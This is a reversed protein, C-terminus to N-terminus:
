KKYFLKLYVREYKAFFMPIQYFVTYLLVVTLIELCYMFFVVVIVQNVIFHDTFAYKSKLGLRLRM